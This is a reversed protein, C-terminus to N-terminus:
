TLPLLYWYSGAGVVLIFLLLLPVLIYSRKVQKRKGPPALELEQEQPTEEQQRNEPLPDDQDLPAVSEVSNADLPNDITTDGPVLIGEGSPLCYLTDGGPLSYKDVHIVRKGEEDGTQASATEDQPVATVDQPEQQSQSFSALIISEVEQELNNQTDAM